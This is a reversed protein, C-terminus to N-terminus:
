EQKPEERKGKVFEEFERKKAQWETFEKWHTYASYMLKACERPNREFELMYQLLAYCDDCIPPYRMRGADVTQTCSPCRVLSAMREAEEPTPLEPPKPREKMKQAAEHEALRQKVYREMVEVTWGFRIALQMAYECEEPSPLQSAWEVHGLKLSGERLADKLYDPLDLLTIRFDIYEKRHSTLAALEEKTGGKELFDRFVAGESIPDTQGRALNEALHMLLAERSDAEIVMADVERKGQEQQERLRSLGAILEYEDGELKRVLIPQLVGFKEVTAKFFAEQEPTFRSSARVEPIRIRDVPILM